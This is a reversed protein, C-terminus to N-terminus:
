LELLAGDSVSNDCSAWTQELNTWQVHAKNKTWLAQAATSM